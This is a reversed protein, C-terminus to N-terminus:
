HTLLTCEIITIISIVISSNYLLKKLTLNDVKLYINLLRRKTVIYVNNLLDDV